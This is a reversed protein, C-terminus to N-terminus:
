FRDYKLVRGSVYRRYPEWSWKYQEILTIGDSSRVHVCVCVCVCVSPDHLLIQINIIIIM